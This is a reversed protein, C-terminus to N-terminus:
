AFFFISSDGLKEKGRPPMGFGQNAGYNPNGGPPANYMGPMGMGGMGPNGMAPNGMAPNGMYPGGMPPPGRPPYANNPYANYNMPPAGGMPGGMPAGMPAGMGMGMGPNMMPAGGMPPYNPALGTNM